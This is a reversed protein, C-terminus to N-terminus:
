LLEKFEHCLSSLDLSSCSPLGYTTTEAKGLKPIACDNAVDEAFEGIAMSTGLEGKAKSARKWIQQVDPSIHNDAAVVSQNRSLVKNPSFTFDLVLEHQRLFDIGHIVGVILSKVVVFPYEVSVQGVEVPASVYGLVPITEGAATVLRLERSAAACVGSVESLGDKQVLSVSSGSDLMMDMDVSGLQGRVIATNSRVAAIVVDAAVDKFPGLVDPSAWPGFKTGRKRKGAQM